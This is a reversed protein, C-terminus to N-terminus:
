LRALGEEIKGVELLHFNEPEDALPGPRLKSTEGAPTIVFVTVPIGIAKLQHVLDQREEDWAIFVCVCGSVAAIHEMVLTQSLLFAQGASGSPRLIEVNTGYTGIWSGGYLLVSSTRRVDIWCHIRARFPARLHPPSLSLRRLCESAGLSNFTDLILAHRVFFEDQFEKVIPKGFKAWSRWHVHRLPDGPRYDRLSM